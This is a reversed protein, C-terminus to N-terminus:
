RKIGMRRILDDGSRIIETSSHLDPHKESDLYGTPEGTEASVVWSAAPSHPGLLAGVARPHLGVCHGVAGYTARRKIRGLFSVPPDLRPDM